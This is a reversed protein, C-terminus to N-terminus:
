IPSCSHKGFATPPALPTIDEDLWPELYRKYALVHDKGPWLNNQPRKKQAEKKNLIEEVVVRSLLYLHGKEVGVIWLVDGPKVGRRRIQDGGVYDM